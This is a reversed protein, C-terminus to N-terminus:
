TAGAGGTHGRPQVRTGPARIRRDASIGDDDDERARREGPAHLRAKCRDEARRTSSVQVRAQDAMRDMDRALRAASRDLQMYGFVVTDKRPEANVDSHLAAAIEALAHVAREITRQATM